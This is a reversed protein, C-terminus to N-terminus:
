NDSPELKYGMGYITKIYEPCGANKLKKKLNKVHAYVLDFNDFLDANDGMLHEAITSKSLVRGPSSVFFLLLDYEKPSLQDIKESKYSVSKELLNVSLDYFSVINNGLFKKRRIIAMVRISLEALHFPKTLYDDAGLGLGKIKDDLSDKASIIIVGEQKNLQKLKELVVFGNGDPLSIDLLICDYEYVEIQILASDVTSALECTYGESNLYNKIAFSLETNDEIILIKM